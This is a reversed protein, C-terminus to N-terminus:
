LLAYIQALKGSRMEQELYCIESVTPQILIRLILQYQGFLQHLEGSKEDKQDYEQVIKTAKQYNVHLQNLVMFNEERCKELLMNLYHQDTQYNFKRELFFPNVNQVIFYICNIVFSVNAHDNRKKLKRNSINM